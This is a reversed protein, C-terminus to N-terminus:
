KEKGICILDFGVSSKRLAKKIKDHFLRYVSNVKHM